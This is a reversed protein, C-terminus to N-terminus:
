SGMREPATEAPAPGPQGGDVQPTEEVRRTAREVVRVAEEASAWAAQFRLPEAEPVLLLFDGRGLLREAGGVEVGAMRRAEEASEVAGVIRGPFAWTLEPLPRSTSAVVHLGCGPGMDLLFPLRELEEEALGDLDDVFAVLRPAASGDWMRRHLEATLAEVGPARVLHPLGGLDSFAAGPLALQLRAQRDLLAMSLAMTRLLTTKGAGPAGAVLVHATAPGGMQLLLPVGEEEHEDELGLVATCPPIGGPLQRCLALLRVPGPSERPVEVRVADGQRYVRCHRSGLHLALEDYLDVVEGARAGEGLALDFRLWGRTVVGGTVRVPVHHAALVEEIRDALHELHSRV